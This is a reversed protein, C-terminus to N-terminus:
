DTSALLFSRIESLCSAPEDEFLLHGAHPFRVFRANPLRREWESLFHHDFIADCEGWLVLIPKTSLKSLGESVEVVGPYSSDRPSLPIDRVFRLVAVRHSWSDYPALYGQKVRRALPRETGTWLLGRVFMNLGQVLLPGLPTNRVWWLRWPFTKSAPMPFGATNTIVLSRIQEPRRVATLLGIMGGWDHVILTIPEPLALHDLLAGLDNARRELTYPYSTAAPKDSAGCGIHDPALVRFRDRLGGIIERFYFSSTPNGHVVLVPPGTGEDVYALRNGQVSLFRRQFPFM